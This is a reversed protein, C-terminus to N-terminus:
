QQWQQILEAFRQAHQRALEESDADTILVQRKYV